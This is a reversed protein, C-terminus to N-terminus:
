NFGQCTCNIGSMLIHRSHLPEGASGSELESVGASCSTGSFSLSTVCKTNKLLNMAVKSWTRISVLM